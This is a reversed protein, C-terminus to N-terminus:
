FDILSFMENFTVCTSAKDKIRILHCESHLSIQTKLNTIGCSFIYTYFAQLKLSVNCRDNNINEDASRPM